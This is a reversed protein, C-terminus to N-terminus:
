RAPRWQGDRFVGLRLSIPGLAEHLALSATVAYPGESDAVGLDALAVREAALTRPRRPALTPTLLISICARSPSGGVRGEPGSAEVSLPCAGHELRVPYRTVNEARVRVVLTDSVVSADATFALDRPQALPAGAGLAGTRGAGVALGCAIWATSLMTLVRKPRM